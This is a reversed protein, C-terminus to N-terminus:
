VPRYGTNSDKWEEGQTLKVTSLPDLKQSRTGLGAPVWLNGFVRGPHFWTMAAVALIIMPGEFIMFTAEDNALHGSFGEQLEAVRYVSRIFILVTAIVLSWQFLTFKRTARLQDYLPPQTRALAGSLRSRRVRLAFDAWLVMFFVMSIVQSVLGAVMVDTGLKSGKKDKATAALGGGIGQLILALLDFGVFVYTYTKPRLRSNESGIATIVRSLCLYICATLFAPGITLCILYVLFNNMIFPNNHLMIRGIYGIIELLVGMVMAGLYTWTKKRVGFFIQIGLLVLFCILYVLNGGLNPIYSITAWEIPCEGLKCYKRQMGILTPDTTNLNLNNPDIGNKDLGM